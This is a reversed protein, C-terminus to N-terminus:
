PKPQTDPKCGVVSNGVEHNLSSMINCRGTKRESFVAVNAAVNIGVMLLLGIAVVAVLWRLGTANNHSRMHLIAFTIVILGAIAVVTELFQAYTFSNEM